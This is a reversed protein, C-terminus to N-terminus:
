MFCINCIITVHFMNCIITVHFMGTPTDVVFIYKYKYKNKLINTIKVDKHGHM